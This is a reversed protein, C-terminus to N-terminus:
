VPKAQAVVVARFKPPLGGPTRIDVPVGLLDELEGQLGGLDFLTTEPLPDVLLDLDSDEADDGRLVSGFVRPNAVPYRSAIRRIDDRKQEFAISPRMSIRRNWQRPAGAGGICHM